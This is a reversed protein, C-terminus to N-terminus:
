AALEKLRNILVDAEDSKPVIVYGLRTSDQRGFSQLAMVSDWEAALVRDPITVVLQESDGNALNIQMGQLDSSYSLIYNMTHAKLQTLEVTWSTEAKDGENGRICWGTTRTAMLPIIVRLNPILRDANNVVELLRKEIVPEATLKMPQQERGAFWGNYPCFCVSIHYGEGELTGFVRVQKRDARIGTEEWLERVAADEPSDDTEEIHGGPLNWKGAQWAPKRKEILLVPDTM